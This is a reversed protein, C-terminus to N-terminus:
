KSMLFAVQWSEVSSIHESESVVIKYQAIDVRAVRRMLCVLKGNGDVVDYFYDICKTRISMTEIELACECKKRSKSKNDKSHRICRQGRSPPFVDTLRDGWGVADDRCIVGGSVNSEHVIHDYRSDRAKQM